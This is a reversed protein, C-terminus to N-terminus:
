TTTGALTYADREWMEALWPAPLSHHLISGEHGFVVEDMKPKGHFCMVRCDRPLRPVLFYNLPPRPIADRKFSCVLNGPLYALQKHRLATMSTYYQESGRHLAVSRAPDAAFEDYLYPHLGPDFSFVSGHGGHKGRWEYRWERRMVVRDPSHDVIDALDGTVVVDLDFGLIQGSMDALGPRFLSIKRWAGRRGKRQMAAVIEAEFPEIPLPHTEIAPDIGAADDTFCIFRFSRDLGRRVGAHLRNVYYSPYKDGWKICVVNLM